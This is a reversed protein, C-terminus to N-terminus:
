ARPCRRRAKTVGQHPGSATPPASVKHRFNTNPILARRGFIWVGLGGLLIIGLSVGIFNQLGETLIVLGLVFLPISNFFLHNFNQHVFPSIPIGILGILHRPYIGWYNLKSGTIWNIINLAWLIVFGFIWPILYYQSKNLFSQLEYALDSLM